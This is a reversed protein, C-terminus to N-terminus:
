DREHASNADPVVCVVVDVTRGTVGKSTIRVSDLAEKLAARLM